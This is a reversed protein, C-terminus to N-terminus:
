LKGKRKLESIIDRVQEEVTPFVTRRLLKLKQWLTM